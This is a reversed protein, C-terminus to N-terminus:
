RGGVVSQGRWGCCCHLSMSVFMEFDDIYIELTDLVFCGFKTVEDGCGVWDWVDENAGFSKLWVIVSLLIKGGPYESRRFSLCSPYRDSVPIPPPPPPTSSAMLDSMMWSGIIVGVCSSIVAVLYVEVVVFM